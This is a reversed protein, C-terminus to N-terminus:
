WAKRDGLQYPINQSFTHSGEHFFPYMILEMNSGYKKILIFKKRPQKANIESNLIIHIGAWVNIDVLILISLLLFIILMKLSVPPPNRERKGNMSMDEEDFNKDNM